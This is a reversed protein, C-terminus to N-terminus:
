DFALEKTQSKKFTKKKKFCTTWKQRFSGENKVVTQLFRKGDPDPNLRVEHLYNKFDKVIEPSGHLCFWILAWAQAYEKQGFTENITGMDYGKLSLFRPLPIIQNKESMSKFLPYHLPSLTGFSCKKPDLAATEMYTSFGENLSQSIEKFTFMTFCHTVEHFIVALTAERSGQWFLSIIQASPNFYGSAYKVGQINLQRIHEFYEKKTQFLNIKPKIGSLTELGYIGKLKEILCDLNRMIKRTEMRKLPSTFTYYNSQPASEQHNSSSHHNKDPLLPLPRAELIPILFFSLCFSFIIKMFNFYLSSASFPLSFNLGSYDAQLFHLRM